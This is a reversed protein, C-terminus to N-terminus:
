DEEAGAYSIAEEPCVKQCGRCFEVCEEPAVVVPRGEEDLEFVGHPCFDVCAGCEICKERSIIPHWREAM